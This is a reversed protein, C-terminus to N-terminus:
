AAKMEPLDADLVYNGDVFQRCWLEICALGLIPYAADIRGARDNARLDAVAIPDFIGRARLRDASLCDDILPAMPGHLWKRLPAGFGTKPRYIVEDPLLGEMAKKFVWKGTAGKQKISTPLTMAYRVLDRDILPVRIEVGAAMGMKDAFNLNHDVLFHRCELYLMRALPDTVDDIRALSQKLPALLMDDDMAARLEPTFLRRVNAPDLWLFYHALRSDTSEGAYRFAKAIRRTYANSQPLGNATAALLQRAPAPMWGWWREQQLAYHRRYGTFIDDGGAGSLLVKIGNQRALGAILETNLASPDPTPEDLLYVMEALRDMMSPDAKVIHLDVDLADAVRKAYPLDDAFGEAAIDAGVLEMSFCQLRQGQERLRAAAIAVISSSDLGGSLFAGLPVDSILQREVAATVERRVGAIAEDVGGTLPAPHPHAADAYLSDEMLTGDRFRMVQGPLLKIIGEAITESGPAWLLGIHRAAVKPNVQARVDGARILAKMESAFAIRQGDAAVYLPKVGMEDRCLTLTRSDREWFAVAFIGNLRQFCATGERAFLRLLVESDCDSRFAEGKGELEARLTPFNYIEGNFVMVVRGDPSVMPQRGAPTPDLIALRGHGLYCGADRDMWRDCGDPGRRGIAALGIDPKSWRGVVGYIGCM